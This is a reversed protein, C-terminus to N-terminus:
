GGPPPGGRWLVIRGDEGGSALTGGDTVLAGSALFALARQTPPGGLEAVARGEPLAWLRVPKGGGATALSRGDASVALAQGADGLLLRPSGLRGAELPWLTVHGAVDTTYVSRGDYELTSPEEL